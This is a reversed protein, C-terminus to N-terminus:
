HSYPIFFTVISRSLLLPCSILIILSVAFDTGDKQESLLNQLAFQAIPSHESEKSPAAVRGIELERFLRGLTVRWDTTQIIAEGALGLEKRLEADGILTQLETAYLAPDTTDNMTQNVLVGAIPRLKASAPLIDPFVTSAALPGVLPIVTEGLLEPLAGARSLVVPIRMAMAEAAAICLGETVSPLLFIDAAALYEQPRKVSGLTKVYKGVKLLKVLSRVPFLLDGGGMMVIIFNDVGRNRLENAIAPILLPRKQGDMRGTTAIVTVEPGVGLMKRKALNRAEETVPVFRELAVGMRAVGIRDPDHGREIAWNRLWWSATITRSLYRQSIISYIPYGGSKWGDYAENHIYQTSNVDPCCM